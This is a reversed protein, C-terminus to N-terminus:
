VNSKQFQLPHKLNAIIARTDPSSHAFPILQLPINRVKSTPAKPAANGNEPSEWATSRSVVILFLPHQSDSRFGPQWRELEDLVSFERSNPLM